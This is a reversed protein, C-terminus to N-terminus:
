GNKAERKFKIVQGRNELADAIHSRDLHAYRKTTKMNTHNLVEQIFSLPYGANRLQGGLSHRVGEYLGIQIGVCGCSSKWIRNLLKNDYHSGKRNPCFVWGKFSPFRKAMELSERARTTIAETRIGKTGTKTTERLEYESHSRKFTIETETVCDWRLATAEQPRIGYECMVIFIPRHRDPIAELVLMQEPYTLWRTTEPEPKTLSPFTPLVFQPVDKHYFRLMTKLGTLINYKASDSLELSHYFMLLKSHTFKRIDHDASFYQITHKIANRYVKKANKCVGCSDLWIKSYEKVSLPSNPRYTRPDFNCDDIESQMLSLIKKAQAKSAFSLWQGHYEFRYFRETVGQWRLQIYWHGTKKDQLVSGGM